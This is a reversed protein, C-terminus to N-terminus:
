NFALTTRLPGNHGHQLMRDEEVSICIWAGNKLMLIYLCSIPTRGSFIGSFINSWQLGMSVQAVYPPGTYGPVSMSQAM